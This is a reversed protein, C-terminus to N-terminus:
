LVRGREVDGPKSSSCFSPLFMLGYKLKFEFSSAEVKSLLGTQSSSQYRSLTNRVEASTKKGVFRNDVAGVAGLAKKEFTHGEWM